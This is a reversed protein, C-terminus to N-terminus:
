KPPAAKPKPSKVLYGRAQLCGQNALQFKDIVPKKGAGSSAKEPAGANAPSSEPKGSSSMGPIGPAISELASPDIGTNEQAIQYCEALDKQQQAASQGHQPAVKPQQAGPPAQASASFGILALMLLVIAFRKM